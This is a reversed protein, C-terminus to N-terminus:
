KKVEEKKTAKLAMKVFVTRHHKTRIEMLANKVTKLKIGLLDAPLYLNDIVAAAIWAMGVALFFFELYTLPYPLAVVHWYYAIVRMLEFIAYIGACAGLANFIAKFKERM